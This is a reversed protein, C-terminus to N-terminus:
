GVGIVLKQRSFQLHRETSQRGKNKIGDVWGM